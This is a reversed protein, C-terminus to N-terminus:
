PAFARQLEGSSDGLGEGILAILRDSLLEMRGFWERMVPQFAIPATPWPTAGQFPDSAAISMGGADPGIDFVEKRDRQEKTPVGGLAGRPAIPARDLDVQSAM